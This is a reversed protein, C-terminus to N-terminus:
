RKQKPAEVDANQEDSQIRSWVMLWTKRCREIVAESAAIGREHILQPTIPKEMIQGACEGRLNYKAVQLHERIDTMAVSLADAIDQMESVTFSASCAAGDLGKDAPQESTPPKPTTTDNNM